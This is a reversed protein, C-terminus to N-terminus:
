RVRGRLARTQQRAAATTRQNQNQQRQQIAKDWNGSRINGAVEYGSGWTTTLVASSSNM